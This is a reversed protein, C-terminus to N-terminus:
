IFGHSELAIMLLSIFWREGSLGSIKSPGWVNTHILTFPSDCRKNRLPYSVRDKNLNSRVQYALDEPEPTTLYYIGEREEASGIM